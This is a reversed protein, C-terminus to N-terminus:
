IVQAVRDRWIVGKVIKSRSLIGVYTHCIERTLMYIMLIAMCHYTNYLKTETIACRIRWRIKAVANRSTADSCRSWHWCHTRVDSLSVLPAPARYRFCPPSAARGVAWDSRGPQESEPDGVFGCSFAASRWPTHSSGRKKHGRAERRSAM